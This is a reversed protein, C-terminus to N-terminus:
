PVNFSTRGRIIYSVLFRDALVSITRYCASIDDADKTMEAGRRLIGHSHKSQLFHMQHTIASHLHFNFHLIILLPSADKRQSGM